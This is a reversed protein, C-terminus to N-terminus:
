KMIRERNNLDFERGIYKIQNANFFQNYGNKAVVYAGIDTHYKYESVDELILTDNDVFVIKLRFTVTASM